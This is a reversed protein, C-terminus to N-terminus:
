DEVHLGRQRHRPVFSVSLKFSEENAKPNEYRPHHFKVLGYPLLQSSILHGDECGVGVLSEFSASGRVGLLSSRKSGFTHKGGPSDCATSM